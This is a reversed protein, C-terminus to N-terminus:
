APSRRGNSRRGGRSAGAPSNAAVAEEALLSLDLEPDDHSQAGVPQGRVADFLEKLRLPLDRGLRVTHAVAQAPRRESELVPLRWEAGAGIHRVHDVDYGDSRYPAPRRSAMRNIRSATVPLIRSSRVTM